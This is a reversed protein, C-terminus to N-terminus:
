VKMPYLFELADAFSLLSNFDAREGSEAFNLMGGDKRFGIRQQGLGSLGDGRRQDAVHARNTAVDAKVRAAEPVVLREGPAFRTAEADLFVAIEAM